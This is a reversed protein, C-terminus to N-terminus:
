PLFGLVLIKEATEYPMVLMGRNISSFPEPDRIFVTGDPPNDPLEERPRIVIGISNCIREWEPRVRRMREITMEKGHLEIYRDMLIDALKRQNM